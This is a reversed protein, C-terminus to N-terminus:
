RKNKSLTMCCSLSPGCWGPWTQEPTGKLYHDRTLTYGVLGLLVTAQVTFLSKVNEAQCMVCM